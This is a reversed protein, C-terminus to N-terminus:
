AKSRIKEARRKVAIAGIVTAKDFESSSLKKISMKLGYKNQLLYKFTEQRFEDGVIVLTNEKQQLYPLIVSIDIQALVGELFNFCEDPNKDLLYQMLRIIMLVRTFGVEEVYNAGRLIMRHDLKSVPIFDDPICGSILTEKKIAPFLQGTVNTINFGIEKNKNVLILKTFSSLILFNFPFTLELEEAMEILGMTQTEEARMFDAQNINEITLDPVYNKVGPIFFIPIPLIEPFSKLVAGKALTDIGAPTVMHTLELLGLDSTILGSAVAEDIEEIGVGANKLSKQVAEKLGNIICEKSGTIATQRVGVPTIGCGLIKNNGDIVRCRTKSTGMDIALLM